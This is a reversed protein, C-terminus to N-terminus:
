QEKLDPSSTAWLYKPYFEPCLDSVHVGTENMIPLAYKPTVKNFQIMSNLQRLSIKTAICLETKGGKRKIAEKLAEKPTM